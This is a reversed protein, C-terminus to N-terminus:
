SAANDCIEPPWVVEFSEFVVPIGDFFPIGLEEHEARFFRRHGELWFARSRDGEGERWAFADTVSDMPAIHVATTRIVCRARQEGDLIVSYRGPQPMPDGDLLLGELSTATARKTGAVVLEALETEMEAGLGFAWAEPTEPIRSLRHGPAAVSLLFDRWMTRASENLRGSM